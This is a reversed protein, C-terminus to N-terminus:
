PGRASIPRMSSSQLSRGFQCYPADPGLRCLIDSIPSNSVNNSSYNYNVYNPAITCSYTMTNHRNEHAGAAAPKLAAAAAAAAVALTYSVRTKLIQRQVFTQFQCDIMVSAWVNMTNPVLNHFKETTLRFFPLDPEPSFFVRLM